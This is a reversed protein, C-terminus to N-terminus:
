LKKLKHLQARPPEISGRISGTNKYRSLYESVNSFSVTLNNATKTFSCSQLSSFHGFVSLGAMHALSKAFGALTIDKERYITIINGRMKVSKAYESATNGSSM